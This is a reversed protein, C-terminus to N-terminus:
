SRISGFKTIILIDSHVFSQLPHLFIVSQHTLAKEEIFHKGFGLSVITVLSFMDWDNPTYLM